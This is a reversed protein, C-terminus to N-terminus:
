HKPGLGLEDLRGELVDQLLEVDQHRLGEGLVRGEAVKDRVVDVGQTEVNRVDCIHLHRLYDDLVILPENLHDAARQRGVM